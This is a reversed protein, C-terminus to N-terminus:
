NKSSSTTATATATATAAATTNTKQRPSFNPFAAERKGRRSGQAAAAAPQSNSAPQTSAKVLDMTPVTRLSGRKRGM